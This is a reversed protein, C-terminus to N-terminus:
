DCNQERRVAEEVERLERRLLFMSVLAEQDWVGRVTQSRWRANEFAQDDVLSQGVAFVRELVRTM